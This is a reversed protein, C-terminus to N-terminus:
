NEKANEPSKFKQIMENLILDFEEKSIEPFDRKLQIDWSYNNMFTSHKIYTVGVCYPRGTKKTQEYTIKLVDEDTNGVRFYNIGVNKNAYKYHKYM